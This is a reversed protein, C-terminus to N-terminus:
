GGLFHDALVPALIEAKVEHTQGPLVATTAGPIQAAIAGPARQMYAPSRGGAVVLTRATISAYHGAPLPLGRRYPALIEFDHPLTDASATLKRWMPFLPAVFVIPAPTDLQRMLAQVARTRRGDAILERLRDGFGPDDPRHSDDVIFPPEYLALVSIPVGQRCAELSLAAGSSMGFVFPSPPGADLVAVLDEVERQVDYPTSGPQSEGRGRRDYGVVTFRDALIPALEDFAGLGRHCLAGEVIVLTPGTGTVEYAIRTGDQSVAYRTSATPSAAM